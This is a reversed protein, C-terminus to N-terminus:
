AKFLTLADFNGSPEVWAKGGDPKALGAATQLEVILETFPFM